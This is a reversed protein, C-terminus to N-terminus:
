IVAKAISSFWSSSKQRSDLKQFSTKLVLYYYMNPTAGDSQYDFLAIESSKDPGIKSFNIGLCNPTAACGDTTNAFIMTADKQKEQETATM